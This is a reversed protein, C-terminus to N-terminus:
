PHYLPPLPFYVGYYVIAVGIGMGSHWPNVPCSFKHHVGVSSSFIVDEKSVQRNKHEAPIGNVVAALLM